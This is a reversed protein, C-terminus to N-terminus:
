PETKAKYPKGPHLLRCPDTYFAGTNLMNTAILMAHEIAVLAKIPGRPSAIRRYKWQPVTRSVYYFPKWYYQHSGDRCPSVEDVITLLALIRPTTSWTTVASAARCTRTQIRVRGQRREELRRPRCMPICSM